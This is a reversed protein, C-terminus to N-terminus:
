TRPAAPPPTPAPDSALSEVWAVFRRPQGGAVVSIGSVAFYRDDKAELAKLTRVCERLVSLADARRINSTRLNLGLLRSAGDNRIVDRFRANGYGPLLEGGHREIPSGPARSIEEEWLHGHAVADRIAFVERQRDYHDTGPLEERVFDIAKRNPGRARGSAAWSSNVGHELLSTSVLIIAAAYGYEIVSTFDGDGGAPSFPDLAAVLIPLPWALGEGMIFIGSSRERGELTV